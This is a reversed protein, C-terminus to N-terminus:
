KKEANYEPCNRYDVKRDPSKIAELCKVVGRVCRSQFNPCIIPHFGYGEIIAERIKDMKNM